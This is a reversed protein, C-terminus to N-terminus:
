RRRPLSQIARTVEDHVSQRVDDTAKVFTTQAVDLDWKGVPPGHAKHYAADIHRTEDAVHQDLKTTVAMWASLAFRGGEFLGILILVITGLSLQVRTKPTIVRSPGPPPTLDEEVLKM